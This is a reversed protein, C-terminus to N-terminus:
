RQGRVTVNFVRVQFTGAADPPLTTFWV